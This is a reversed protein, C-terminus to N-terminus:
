RRSRKLISRWWSKLQVLSSSGPVEVVQSRRDPWPELDLMKRTVYRGVLTLTALVPAALVLGVIGIMRALLIASILVGAPHVGLTKGLLRPVVINDFIQDLVLCSVLVVAAYTVPQLGFYNSTQLLAVLATVFWTIAPGIWPVFRGVAAMLAIALTFRMGLATLLVVYALAALISIVLQGRLFRNWISTLELGLRRTDANYGPIQIPVLSEPLRGSESLLFYSILIVFIGWGVVTVTTTALKSVLSGAQGMMPSVVDLVQRALTSLDFQSFDISFPGIQFQRNSLETVLAPLDNVVRTVFDVLSQVQQVLAFGTLTLAGVLIIVLLLYILNVAMRWSFTTWTSLRNALPHLLFALIFALLLPGIIQRFQVMLAAILAIIAIGIVMKTNSAWRPSAEPIQPASQNSEAPEPKNMM